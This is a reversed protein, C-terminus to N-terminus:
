YFYLIENYILYVVMDIFFSANNLIIHYYVFILCTSISKQRNYAVEELQIQNRKKTSVNQEM